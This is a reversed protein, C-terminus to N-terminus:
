TPFRLLEEQTEALRAVMANLDWILEDLEDGESSSEPVRAGYDGDRIKRTVNRLRRIRSAIGKALWGSM